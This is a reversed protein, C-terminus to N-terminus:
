AGLKADIAGCISKCNLVIFSDQRESAATHRFFLKNRVEGFSEEPLVNVVDAFPHETFNVDAEALGPKYVILLTDGEPFLEAPARKATNGRYSDRPLPSSLDAFRVAASFAERPFFGYGEILENAIALRYVSVRSLLRLGGRTANRDYEALEFGYRTSWARLTDPDRGIAEAAEAFSYRPTLLTYTM